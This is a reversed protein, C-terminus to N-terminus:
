QMWGKITQLANETDALVWADIDKFGEPPAQLEAKFAEARARAYRDMKDRVQPNPDNDKVVVRKVAWAMAHFLDGKNVNESGSPACTHIGHQLLLMAPIEAKVILLPESKGFIGGYNFLGTTSGPYFMFRDRRNKADINRLKISILQGFHFTPVAMYKKGMNEYMRVGFRGLTIVKLPISRLEGIANKVAQRQDDTLQRPRRLLDADIQTHMSVLWRAYETEANELNVIAVRRGNLAEKYAEWRVISSKGDGPRAAIIPFDQDEYADLIAQLAHIKPYLAPVYTGDLRAHMQTQFLDM